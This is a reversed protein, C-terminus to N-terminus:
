RRHRRVHSRVWGDDLACEGGRDDVVESSHFVGLPQVQLAEVHLVRQGVAQSPRLHYRLRGYQAPKAVDYQMMVVLPGAPVGPTYLSCLNRDLRTDNM